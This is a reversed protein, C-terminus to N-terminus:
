SDCTEEDGFLEDGPFHETSCTDPDPTKDLTFDNEDPYYPEEDGSPEHGSDDRTKTKEPDATM